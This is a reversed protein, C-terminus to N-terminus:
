LHRHDALPTPVDEGQSGRKEMYRQHEEEARWFDTMPSIETVISRRYKGSRQLRDRSSFAADRQADDYYFIASRFQTGIDAGQQNITTPDHANWFLELLEQFSVVSPNFEVLVVEAHGTTDTSVEAYTPNEIDGGSYGVTADIVGPVKRFIPEVGWFCGAGFVARSNV